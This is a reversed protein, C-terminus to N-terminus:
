PHNSKFRKNKRTFINVLSKPEIFVLNIAACSLLLVTAGSLSVISDVLEIPYEEPSNFSIFTSSFVAARIIAITLSSVLIGRESSINLDM